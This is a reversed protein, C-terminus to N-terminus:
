LSSFEGLVAIVKEMAVPKSLVKAAGKGLLEGESFDSYGTMLVVHPPPSPFEKRLSEMLEVGSGNPMRIDSLVIWPQFERAVGLAERGGFARRVEYGEDTLIEAMLEVLDREDDVVLVKKSPANM